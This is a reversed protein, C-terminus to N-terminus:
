VRRAGLGPLRGPTYVPSPSAEGPTDQTVQRVLPLPQSSRPGGTGYLGLSLTAYVLCDLRNGPQTRTM